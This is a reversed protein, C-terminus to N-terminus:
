EGYYNKYWSIYNEIGKEIKTFQRKKIKNKLLTNDGSTTEVDGKQIKLYNKKSKKNSFREIIEIYEKLKIPNSSCINFINYPISTDKFNVKFNIKKPYKDKLKFISEVLDDIYTFDRIHKGKNFLDIKKNKLTGDVFKYLSMDPRGFPGFVTFFRLGTTPIGFNYSYSFALIENMKKTAGYLSSPFSTDLSEKFPLEDNIGYVSSSSAYLLHKVKSIKSIELINFFGIINNDIYSKPNILSYRVGAQAALHIIIEPKYNQVKTKVKEFNNIDLKHFYYNKNKKLIKNRSLKLNVDYYDSLNDLGIVNYNHSILKKCLHFGIFGASGTVLITKNKKM